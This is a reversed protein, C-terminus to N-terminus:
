GLCRDLESGFYRDISAAFDAFGSGHGCLSTDALAPVLARWMERAGPEARGGALAAGVLQEM